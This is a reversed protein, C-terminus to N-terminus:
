GYFDGSKYPKELKRDNNLIIRLSCINKITVFYNTSNFRFISQILALCSLMGIIVIVKKHIIKLRTSGYSVNAKYENYIIAMCTKIYSTYCSQYTVNETDWHETHYKNSM